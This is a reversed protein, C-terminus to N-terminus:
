PKKLLYRNMMCRSLLILALINMGEAYCQLANGAFFLIICILLVNWFWHFRQRVERNIVPYVFILSLPNLLLIQLNLNVTPHQSFVMALLIIGAIGDLTLLTVDILWFTKQRRYEIMGALLIVIFVGSWLMNPTITDWINRNSVVNDANAKLLVTTSSVLSRSKGASDIIAAGAFDKRLTDPLFQQEAYNTKADAKVGLLLDNGFRAWRHTGNWQHIMTRYSSTINPNIRYSVKATINDILINRARTTCNDYFFNYRYVRNNQYNLALAQLIREKDSNSLQLTQQIVQRGQRAYEVMFMNFPEIGMEYDTLGFVFRLIFNSQRFNFLGYNIVIDQAHAPDFVRIATHGYLSWVENGPSCTLLSIQVSDMQQREAGEATQGHSITATFTFVVVFLAKIISNLHKM